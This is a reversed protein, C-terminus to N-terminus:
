FKLDHKEEDICLKTQMVNVEEESFEPHLPVNLRAPFYKDEHAATMPQTTHKSNTQKAM